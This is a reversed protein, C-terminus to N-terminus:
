AWKLPTVTISSYNVSGTATTNARLSMLTLTTTGVPLKLVKTRTVPYGYGSGVSVFPCLAWRETNSVHDWEPALVLAGSAQLGVYIPTSSSGNVQAGFEVAVWLQATLPIAVQCTSVATWTNVAGQATFTNAGFATVPNPLAPIVPAAGGGGGGSRRRELREIRGHHEALLEDMTRAVM